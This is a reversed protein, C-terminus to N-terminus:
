QFSLIRGEAQIVAEDWVNQMKLDSLWPTSLESRFCDFTLLLYSDLELHLYPHQTQGLLYSDNWCSCVKKSESILKGVSNVRNVQGSHWHLFDTDVTSEPYPSNNKQFIKTRFSSYLPFFSFHSFLENELMFTVYFEIGQQHRWNKLMFYILPNASFYGENWTPALLIYM